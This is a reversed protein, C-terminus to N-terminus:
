RMDRILHGKTTPQLHGYKGIYYPNKCFTHKCYSVDCHFNGMSCALKAFLKTVSAEGFGNEDSVVKLGWLQDRIVSVQALMADTPFFNQTWGEHGYRYDCMKEGDGM